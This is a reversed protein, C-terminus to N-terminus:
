ALTTSKLPTGGTAPVGPITKSLALNLSERIADASTDIPFLGSIALQDGKKAIEFGTKPMKVFKKAKPQDPKGLMKDVLHRAEDRGLKKASIEKAAKLQSEADPLRTLDLAHSRTLTQRCVDNKIEEPLSLIGISQTIYVRSRGAVKAIEEHTWHNPDLKNLRDFGEAEEIPNLDRRQLNEVLGKSVAAAESPVDIVRAEISTMGLSKVARLRREGSILEYGYASRRLTIPQILGEKEISAALAQIGEEDFDKRPQYPSAHIQDLPIAQVAAATATADPM